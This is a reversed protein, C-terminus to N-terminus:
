KVLMMKMVKSFEGASLKYFYVGSSLNAANWQYEFHGGNLNGNVLSTIEKGTIDYIKLTVLGNYNQPLDFSIKTTPNFPNPYNQNLKIDAPNLDQEEKVFIRPTELSQGQVPINIYTNRYYIRNTANKMVPLVFPNTALFNTDKSHTDLNTVIIRIKNGAKFVHSHAHGDISKTKRQNTTYYRDTYNVRNVLDVAGTSSVECIQFNYQCIDTSSQYDLYISPTGTMVVDTTLTSTEFYISTKKFAADFNTGKFEDMVAQNLTYNSKRIDNKFSAYSTTNTNQSTTLRNNTNFYLKMNSMVAPPWVSSSDHVFSWLGSVRPYTSSAFHFRPRTQIGNDIGWIYYYFWENFFNMHWQQETYSTDGGHGMVAGWYVRYPAQLLSCNNISYKANFFYDQWSNEILIPVTSNPVINKFDRNLPVYYALSDWKNSKQGTAYVWNRMAKVQNNYHATDPTYDITWLFSMKISGNDIWSSAFEPSTLASIISNVKMGMCAAMFPLTGGQSGGTILIKTTDMGVPIVDHKIYEVLEMLDLAETRSILNSFGGSNGQGRVSYTYVVYGYSAQSNAFGELTEKRDGYGHVMVVCPYGNQWNPNAEAPYFKSCDMNVNDRLTLNFDVKIVPYPVDKPSLMGPLMPIVNKELVHRKPQSYINLIGIFSLIFIIVITVAIKSNSNKM